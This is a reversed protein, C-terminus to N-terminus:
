MRSGGGIFVAWVRAITQNGDSFLGFPSDLNLTFRAYVFGGDYFDAQVFPVLALQANDEHGRPLWVGQLRAGLTTKDVHGGILGALQLAIQSAGGTAGTPIILGAALDGGLV